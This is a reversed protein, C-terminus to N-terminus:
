LRLALSRKISALRPVRNRSKFPDSMPSLHTLHQSHHLRCHTEQHQDTNQRNVRLGLLRGDYNPMAHTFYTKKIGNTCNIEPTMFLSLLCLIDITKSDFYRPHHTVNFNKNIEASVM